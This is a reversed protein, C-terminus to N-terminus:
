EPAGPPPLSVTMFRFLQRARLDFEDEFLAKTLQKEVGPASALLEGVTLSVGLGLIRKTIKTAGVPEKLVISKQNYGNRCRAYRSRSHSFTYIRAACPDFKWESLGM